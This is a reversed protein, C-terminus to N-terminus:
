IKLWQKGIRPDSVHRFMDPLATFYSTFHLEKLDPRKLLMDNSVNPLTTWEASAQAHHAAHFPENFFLACLFKEVPNTPVVFRTMRMMDEDCMGLHEVMRRWSIMVSTLYMPIVYIILYGVWWGNIAVTTLVAIAVVIGLVFETWCRRRVKDNMKGILISRTFMCIFYPPSLTLEILVSFIRKRRSVSTNVYPWFELDQESGTMGHHYRHLMRYVAMPTLTITGAVVGVLDNIKRNSSVGYHAAEHVAIIMSQLSITSACVALLAIPWLGINWAAFGSWSFLPWLAASYFPIYKM